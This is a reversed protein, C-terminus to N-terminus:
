LFSNGTCLASITENITPRHFTAAIIEMCPQGRKSAFKVLDLYCSFNVTLFFQIFNEAVFM